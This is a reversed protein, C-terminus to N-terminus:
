MKNKKMSWIMTLVAFGLSVAGIIFVGSFGIIEFFAVGLLPAFLGRFGTLTLHVSQYHMVDEDKCFYASGIYWLLAMTAAFIGYFIYSVILSYYVKVDSVWFYYPFYETLAMFIIYLMMAGFSYIGFKRPDIKSILKGFFPMILIALVNYSNKYFAISTYNLGLKNEFFITIIATSTMWGFGYLMFGIEFDRYPKNKVLIHLMNKFSDSIALFFTRKIEVKKKKFKIKTLIFISFISFFGLIPYIFRFAFNDFDLLKGVAFTVFLMVVKSAQSSFSYLKGFNNHTYSDKLLQNITPFIIPNALYYVFFVSLFAIQHFNSIESYNDPFFYLLFLPIRTILALIRLMKKKNKARRQGENFFISILLIVVAFQVLFGIQYNTGKLSKILIFENLALTGLVIGDIVSFVFHFKFTQKERSNLLPFDILKLM